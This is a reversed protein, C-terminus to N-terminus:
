RLSDGDAEDTASQVRAGFFQEADALRRRARDAAEKRM